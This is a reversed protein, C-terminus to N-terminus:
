RKNTRVACRGDNAHQYARDGGYRRKPTRERVSVVHNAEADGVSAVHVQDSVHASRRRLRYAPWGAGAISLGKGSRASSIHETGTRGMKNVPAIGSPAARLKLNRQCRNPDRIGTAEVPRSAPGFFLVLM